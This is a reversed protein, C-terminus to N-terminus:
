EIAPLAQLIGVAKEARRNHTTLVPGCLVECQPLPLRDVVSMDLSEGVRGLSVAEEPHREAYDAMHGCPYILGERGSVYLSSVCSYCREPLQGYIGHEAEGRFIEQFSRWASPFNHALLKQRLVPMIELRLKELDETRLFHEEYEKIPFFELRDIEPFRQGILDVMEPLLHFNARFIVISVILEFDGPSEKKRRCLLDLASTQADFSGPKGRWIDHTEPTPGYLATTLRQLDAELLLEIRKEDLIHCNSFLASFM